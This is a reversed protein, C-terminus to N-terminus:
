AKRKKFGYLATSIGVLVIPIGILFGITADHVMAGQENYKAVAPTVFAMGVAVGIVGASVIIIRKMQKRESKKFESKLMNPQGIRQVSIKFSEQESLGSKRQQEIEERLHIELEELPVPTKIGAALMQKRWELISQELDFM